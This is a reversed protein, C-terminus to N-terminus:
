KESGPGPFCYKQFLGEKVTTFTRFSFNEPFTSGTFSLFSQSFRSLNLKNASKSGKLADIKLKRNRDQHLIDLM